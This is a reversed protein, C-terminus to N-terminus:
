AELRAAPMERSMPLPAPIETSAHMVQLWYDGCIIGRISLLHGNVSIDTDPSIKGVGIHHIRGRYHCANINQIKVAHGSETVLEDGVQLLSAAKLQGDPMLFLQDPTARIGVGEGCTIIIVAHGDEGASVGDSFSVNAPQWTVSLQGGLREISASQVTDSVDVDNAPKIEDESTRIEQDDGAGSCCCYCTAWTWNRDRDRLDQCAEVPINRQEKTLRNYCTQTPVPVEPGKPDCNPIHKGRWDLCKCFARWNESQRFDLCQESFCRLAAPPINPACPTATTAM